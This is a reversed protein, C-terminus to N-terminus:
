PKIQKRCSCQSFTCPSGTACKSSCHHLTASSDLAVGSSPTTKIYFLDCRVVSVQAAKSKAWPYKRLEEEREETKQQHVAHGQVAVAAGDALRHLLLQDLEGSVEVTRKLHPSTEPLWYSVKVSDAGPVCEAAAPARSTHFVWTSHPLLPFFVSVELAWDCRLLHETKQFCTLLPALSLYFHWSISDKRCFECAPPPTVSLQSPECTYGGVGGMMSCTFQSHGRLSFKFGVLSNWQYFYGSCKTWVASAWNNFTFLYM